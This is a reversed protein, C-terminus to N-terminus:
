EVTKAKSSELEMSNEKEGAVKISEVMLGNSPVKVMDRIMRSNEMM